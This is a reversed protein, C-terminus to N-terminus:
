KMMLQIQHPITSTLDLTLSMLLDWNQNHQPFIYWHHCATYHTEQQFHYMVQWHTLLDSKNNFHQELPNQACRNRVANQHCYAPLHTVCFHQDVAFDRFICTSHDDKRSIALAVDRVPPCKKFIHVLGSSKHLIM